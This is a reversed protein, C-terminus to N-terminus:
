LIDIVDSACYWYYSINAYLSVFLTIYWIQQDLHKYVYICINYVYCGERWCPTFQSKINHTHTDSEITEEGGHRPELM